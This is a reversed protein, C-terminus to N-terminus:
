NSKVYYNNILSSTNKKINIMEFSEKNGVAHFTGIEEWKDKSKSLSMDAMGSFCYMGVYLVEASDSSIKFTYMDQSNKELPASLRVDNLLFMDEGENSMTIEYECVESENCAVVALLLKGSKYSQKSELDFAMFYNDNLDQSSILTSLSENNYTCVPFDTCNAMLLYPNGKSKHLQMRLQQANEIDGYLHYQLIDGKRLSSRLPVGRILPMTYPQSPIYMEMDIVQFQVTSIGKEKVANNVSLCLLNNDHTGEVISFTMYGTDDIVGEKISDQKKKDMIFVYANQTYSFANFLYNFTHPESNTNYYERPNNIQFCEFDFDNEGVIALTVENVGIASPSVSSIENITRTSVTFIDGYEKATISIEFPKGEVYGYDNGSLIAGYGNFFNRKLEIQKGNYSLQVDFRESGGSLISLLVKKYQGDQIPYKLIYPQTTKVFADVSSDDELLIDSVLNYELIYSCVGKCETGIYMKNNKIDSIPVFLLSNDAISKYTLDSYTPKEM